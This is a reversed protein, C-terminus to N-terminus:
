SFNVKDKGKYLSTCGPDTAGPRGAHRPLCSCLHLSEKQKKKCSLVLRQAM